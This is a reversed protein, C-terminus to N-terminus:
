LMFGLNREAQTWNNIQPLILSLDTASTVGFWTALTAAMQDVSTTPLLRGQGVDDPGGTGQATLYKGTGDKTSINPPKGYFEKGKVAGGMVFHHSGWGHDSGNGNGTLTRGFDSATFTTVSDRTGIQGLVSDFYKLADAVKQQLGPHQSVVTDHTDFGGLSVFFVQRKAGLSARSEIIRAVMKLQGMLSNTSDFPAAYSGPFPVLANTLTENASLSRASVSAYERGFVSNPATTMISRLADRASTSSFLNSNTIGNVRVSGSSSVQYQVASQGSLYVANGSVSISTFTSNGNGAAFLDGIRGGWGTVSGEPKSSQWFSQQDNHSFLKPPLPVSRANYQAKTTPQRLTGTNFLVALREANFVDLLPNVTPAATGVVYPTLAFQLGSFNAGATKTTL